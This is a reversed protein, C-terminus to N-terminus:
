MEILTFRKAQIYSRRLEDLEKKQSGRKIEHSFYTKKVPVFTNFAAWQKWCKKAIQVFDMLVSVDLKGKDASLTSAKM